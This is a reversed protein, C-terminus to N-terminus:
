INNNEKEQKTELLRGLYVVVQLGSSRGVVVQLSVQLIQLPLVRSHSLIIDTM